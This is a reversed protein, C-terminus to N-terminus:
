MKRLRGALVKVREDNKDSKLTRWNVRTKFYGISRESVM